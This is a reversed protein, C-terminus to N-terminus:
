PISRAPRFGLYDNRFGPSRRFRLAARVNGALNSWSGGRLVRYSGADSGMPDTATGGYDGYWDWCWEWVNGLMDHLGWVNARKGSVRHTGCRSSSRQKEPWDSCGIGGKYDVGSNGGYWAIPDLAPANNAGKIEMSGTYIATGTGARAAYEWEAETPLRYGSCSLGSFRVKECEMDNGPKKGGCGSLTYCESLGESRSLANCYALAEYWNVTEVPCDSGCHKFHSPNNGMLDQWEGQTVETSKLYYSRSICVRHRKEDDDRGPENAPSGMQFCGPEIRVYGGVAAAVTHAFKRLMRKADDERPNGLPDNKFTKLFLELADRGEEGGGAAVAKVQKWLREVRASHAKAKAEREANQQKELADRLERERREADERQKRARALAAMQDEFAADDASHDLLHVRGREGDVRVTSGRMALRMEALDPGQDRRSLRPTMGMDEGSVQPIQSRGPDLTRLVGRAYDVAESASVRGDGDTDEGWGRLAGLVLYSFAPRAAYPLAGALDSPRGATLVTIDRVEAFVGPAAFQTGALLQEGDSGLGSFCVDLVVVRAACTATKLLGLLESRALTYPYFDVEDAHADVGVLVGDKGDKTPAGHGIFVFWLTGDERVDSVANLVAARIKRPTADANELLAVQTVPVKRVKTFYNYWDVSNRTAGRIDPLRTYNSVAVVVAADKAGGGTAKPKEPFNPWEPAGGAAFVTLLISLLISM